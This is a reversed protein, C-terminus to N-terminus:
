RDVPIGIRSEAVNNRPGNTREGRTQRQSDKRFLSLLKRLHTIQSPDGNILYRYRAVTM